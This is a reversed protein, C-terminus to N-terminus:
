VASRRDTLLPALESLRPADRDRDSVIRQGPPVPWDIAIEPDTPSIGLDAAPSWYATQKYMLDAVPSVVCFGHAFGAPVYLVRLNEDDLEFGEWEGFTPSTPRVDVVVDVIAGRACRVLKATPPDLQFHMGRLVGHVSRSHNDQVFPDDLGVADAVRSARFTEIFFGRSDMHVDPAMLVPGALRTQLVEM